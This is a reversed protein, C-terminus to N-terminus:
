KFIKQKFTRSTTQFKCKAFALPLDNVFITIDPRFSDTRNRYPVETMVEFINNDLNEFDILHVPEGAFSIGTLFKEYFSKGLDEADLLWNLGTLKIWLSM